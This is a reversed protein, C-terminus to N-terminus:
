VIGASSAFRRRWFYLTLPAVMCGHEAFWGAVTEYARSKLMRLALQITEKAYHHFKEVFSPLLAFTRRCAACFLRRIPLAYTETLAIVSRAYKGHWRLHGSQKCKQCRRPKSSPREHFRHLYVKVQSELM